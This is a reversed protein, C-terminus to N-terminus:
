YHEVGDDCSLLFDLGESRVRRHGPSELVFFSVHQRGPWGGCAVFVFWFDWWLLLVCSSFVVLVESRELWREM